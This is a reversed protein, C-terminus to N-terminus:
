FLEEIFDIQCLILNMQWIDPIFPLQCMIIELQTGTEKDQEVEMCCFYGDAIIIKKDGKVYSCVGTPEFGIYDLYEDIEFIPPLVVAVYKTKEGM